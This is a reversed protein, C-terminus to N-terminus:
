CDCKRVVGREICSHCYVTRCKECFPLDTKYSCFHCHVPFCNPCMNCGSLNWTRVHIIDQCCTKLDCCDCSSYNNITFSNCTMCKIVGIEELEELMKKMEDDRYKLHKIIMNGVYEQINKAM